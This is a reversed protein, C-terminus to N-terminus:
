AVRGSCHKPWQARKPETSRVRVVVAADPTHAATPREANSEFLLTPVFSGRAVTNARESAPCVDNTTKHEYHTCPKLVLVDKLCNLINKKM